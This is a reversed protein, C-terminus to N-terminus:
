EKVVRKHAISQETQIELLYVGQAFRSMDLEYDLSEVQKQVKWNQLELGQLTYIKFGVKGRSHDQIRVQLRDKTPNPYVSTARALAEDATSSVICDQISVQMSFGKQQCATQSHNYELQYIGNELLVEKAETGLPM